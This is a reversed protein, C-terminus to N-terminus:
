TRSLIMAQLVGINSGVVRELEAISLKEVLRVSVMNADVGQRAKFSKILSPSRVIAEEARRDAFGRSLDFQM